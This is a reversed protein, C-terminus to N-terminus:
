NLTISQISIGVLLLLLIIMTILSVITIGKNKKKYM